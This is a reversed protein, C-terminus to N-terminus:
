LFAVQMALTIINYNYNSKRDKKRNKKRDFFGSSYNPCQTCGRVYLIAITLRKPYFRWSFTFTIKEKFYLKLSSYAIGNM